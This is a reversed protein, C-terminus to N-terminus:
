QQEYYFIIFHSQTWNTPSGPNGKCGFKFRDGKKVPLAIYDNYLSYEDISYVESGNITITARHDSGIFYCVVIGSKEMIIEDGSKYNLDQSTVGNKYNPTIYKIVDMKKVSSTEVNSLKAELNAIRNQLQIIDSALITQSTAITM